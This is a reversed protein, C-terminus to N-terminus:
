EKKTLVIKKWQLKSHKFNLILGVQMGTIRLYNLLQGLHEDAINEVTKLEIILRNEVELDPIYDDIHKGKYIVKHVTQSSYDINQLEFEVCMAREYTKERLGHGLENLVTMACGTVQYVLESEINNAQKCIENGGM